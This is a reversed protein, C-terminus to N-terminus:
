SADPYLPYRGALEIVEERVSQAVSTNKINNLVKGIWDGILKMEDEKM